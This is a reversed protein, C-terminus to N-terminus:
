YENASGSSRRADDRIGYRVFTFAMLYALWAAFLLDCRLRLGQDAFLVSAIVVVVATFAIRTGRGRRKRRRVGPLTLVPLSVTLAVSVAICIAVKFVGYGEGDPDLAPYATTYEPLWHMCCYFTAVGSLVLVASAYAVRVPLGIAKMGGAYGRM